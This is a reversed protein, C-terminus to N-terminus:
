ARRPVPFFLRTLKKKPPLPPSTIELTADKLLQALDCGFGQILVYGFISPVSQIGGQEPQSNQKGNSLLRLPTHCRHATLNGTELRDRSPFYFHYDM